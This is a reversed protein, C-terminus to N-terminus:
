FNIKMKRIGDALSKVRGHYKYAGKDFIALTIKKENLKKGMLEGVLNAIEVGTGKKDKLEKSSATLLTKHNVDDIAQVSINALSRFVSLRPKKSTGVIGARTRRARRLSKERKVKNLDKM